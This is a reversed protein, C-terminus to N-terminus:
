AAAMAAEMAEAAPHTAGAADRREVLRDTGAAAELAPAAADGSADRAAERPTAIRWAAALRRRRRERTTAGTVRAAM